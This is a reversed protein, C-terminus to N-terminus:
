QVAVMFVCELLWQYVMAYRSVWGDHSNITCCGNFCVGVVVSLVYYSCWCDHGNVTYHGHFCTRVIVSLAHCLM